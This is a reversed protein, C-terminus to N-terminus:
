LGVSLGVLVRIGVNVSVGVDPGQFPYLHRSYRYVFIGFGLFRKILLKIFVDSDLISRINSLTM